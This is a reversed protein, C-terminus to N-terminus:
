FLAIEESPITLVFKQAVSDSPSYIMRVGLGLKRIIDFQQRSEPATLEGRLEEAALKRMSELSDAMITVKVPDYVYFYDISEFVSTDDCYDSEAIPVFQSLSFDGDLVGQLACCLVPLKITSASVVQTDERIAALPEGTTLDVWYLASEGPFADLAETLWQTIAM